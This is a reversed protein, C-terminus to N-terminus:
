DPVEFPTGMVSEFIEASDWTILISTHPIYNKHLYDILPKCLEKFEDLEEKTKGATYALGM